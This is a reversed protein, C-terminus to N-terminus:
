TAQTPLGFSPRGRDALLTQISLLIRSRSPRIFLTRSHTPESQAEQRANVPEEVTATIGGIGAEPFWNRLVKASM